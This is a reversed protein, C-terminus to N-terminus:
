APQALALAGVVAVNPDTVLYIPVKTLWTDHVATPRIFRENLPSSTALYESLALAVSGTLYVGGTAVYTVALDRLLSGIMAGLRGLITQATKQDVGQGQTAFEKLVAGVPNGASRAKYIAGALHQEDLTELCHDILNDIGHKGSLALEASAHPYKRHLYSLYLLEHEDKPQFGIHGGESALLIRRGTHADWIAAAAGIGTSLAIVLKAGTATPTGPKLTVLEVGTEHLVGATTAIMDNATTFTIGYRDSAEIPNFAPWDGNNLTIAGTEDDRVGAMGVAIRAPRAGIAQFYEILVEDLSPYDSTTYRRVTTSSTDAIHVKTGGVDIGTFLDGRLPLSLGTAVNEITM